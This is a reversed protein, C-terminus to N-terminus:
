QRGDPRNQGEIVPSLAPTARQPLHPPRLSVKGGNTMVAQQQHFPVPKSRRPYGGGRSPPRGQDRLANLRRNEPPHRQRADHANSRPVQPTLHNDFPSHLSPPVKLTKVHPRFSIGLENVDQLLQKINRELIPKSLVVSPTPLDTAPRGIFSKHNQLSFDM